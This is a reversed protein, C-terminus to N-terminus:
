DAVLAGDTCLCHLGQEGRLEYVYNARKDCSLQDKTQMDACRNAARIILQVDAMSLQKGLGLNVPRSKGFVATPTINIRSM